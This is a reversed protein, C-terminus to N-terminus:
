GKINTIQELTSALRDILVDIEDTTICIPPAFGLTGDAFARFILGNEYGAEALRRGIGTEPAFKAKARKDSVLEIAALLGKARVDGVLPHPRFGDLRRQFYAGAAHANEILGNRYLKLVALGVAASVPHGSYAFGHGLPLEAFNPCIRGARSSSM